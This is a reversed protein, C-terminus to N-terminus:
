SKFWFICHLKLSVTRSTNLLEFHFDSDLYCNNIVYFYINGYSLFYFPLLQKSFWTLNSTILSFTVFRCPLIVNQSPIVVEGFWKFESSSYLHVTKMTFSPTRNKMNWIGNFVSLIIDYFVEFHQRTTLLKLSSDPCVGMDMRLLRVKPM